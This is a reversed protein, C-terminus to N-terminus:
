MEDLLRQAERGSIGDPDLAVCAELTAVGEKLAGSKWQAMRRVLLYGWRLRLEADRPLLKAARAYDGNAEEQQFNAGLTESEGRLPKSPLSDALSARARARIKLGVGDEDAVPVSLIAWLIEKGVATMLGLREAKFFLAPTYGPVLTLAKELDPAVDAPIEGPMIMEAMLLRAHARALYARASEGREISQTLIEIAKAADEGVLAEGEICLREAEPDVPTVSVGDGEDPTAPGSGDCAILGVFGLLAVLILIRRM